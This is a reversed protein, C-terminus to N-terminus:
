YNGGFLNNLANTEGPLVSDTLITLSDKPTKIDSLKLKKDFAM